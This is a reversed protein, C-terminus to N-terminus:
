EYRLADVPNRKAASLSQWVVTGLATILITLSSIIFLDISLTIRYAFEALWNQMIHYAVPFAILMAIAILKVYESVLLQIMNRESAGLTKRIGIEKTRRQASFAALGVLGLCATFITLYSMLTIMTHLSTEDRYFTEYLDELYTYTFTRNPVFRNWVTKIHALAEQHQDPEIRLMYHRYEPWRHTLILPAIAHRLPQFHFDKVIGTLTLARSNRNFYIRKGPLSEIPAGNALLTAASENVICEYDVGDPGFDKGAVIPVNLTRIIAEDVQRWALRLQPADFHELAAYGFDGGFHIGVPHMMASAQSIAPHSTFANRVRGVFEHSMTSDFESQFFPLAILNSVEFGLDNSQIYTLQKSITLTAILLFISVAFQLVVLGKRVIQESSGPSAASRLVQAPDFRSLYFAPYIGSLAGIILTVILLDPLTAGEQLGDLVTTSLIPGLLKATIYAILAAICTICFSETLFQRMLSTRSAGLSKRVGVEKARGLSRATTLNVFNTAAILIIFVGVWAFAHVIKIDGYENRADVVGFEEKLHHHFNPLALLRLDSTAVRDEPQHQRIFHILKKALADHSVNEQLRVWTMNPGGPYASFPRSWREQRFGPPIALTLFDPALRWSTTAPPDRLIGQVVFDGVLGWKYDIHLIEGIPNKNGFVRKAYSQTIMVSNPQRLIQRTDGQLAPYTFSDVFGTDAFCINTRFSREGSNVWIPRTFIRFAQEIEPIEQELMPALASQTNHFWRTTDESIAGKQVALHIRNALKHHQNYSLQYRIYSLILLACTMGIALGILSLLAYIRNRLANRLAVQLYNLLM